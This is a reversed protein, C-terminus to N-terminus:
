FKLELVFLNIFYILSIILLVFFNVKPSLKLPHWGIEVKEYPIEKKWIYFYIFTVALLSVGVLPMILFESSSDKLFLGAFAPVLAVIILVRISNPSISPQTM